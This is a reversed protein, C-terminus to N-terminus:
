ATVTAKEKKLLTLAQAVADMALLGATVVLFVAKQLVKLVLSMSKGVVRLVAKLVRTVVGFSENIEEKNDLENAKANVENYDEVATECLDILKDNGTEYAKHLIHAIRSQVGALTESAFLNSMDFVEETESIELLTRFFGKLEKGGKEEDIVEDITEDVSDREEQALKEAEKIKDMIEDDSIDSEPAEPEPTKVEISKNAILKNDVYVKVGTVVMEKEKARQIYGEILTGEFGKNIAKVKMSDTFSKEESDLAVKYTVVATITHKKVETNEESKKSSEERRKVATKVKAIVTEVQEVTKVKNLMNFAKTEGEKSLKAQQIVGRAKTKAKNLEMKDDDGKNTNTNSSSTEEKAGGGKIQNSKSNARDSTREVTNIVGDEDVYETDQKAKVARDRDQKAKLRELYISRLEESTKARKLDEIDKSTLMKEKALEVAVEKSENLKYAEEEEEEETQEVGGLDDDETLEGGFEEVEENVQGETELGENVMEEYVTGNAELIVEVLSEKNLKSYGKLGLDKALKKLDAVKMENLETMSVNMDDDGKITKTEVLRSIGTVNIMNDGGLSNVLITEIAEINVARILPKNILGLSYLMNVAYNDAFVEESQLRRSYGFDLLQEPTLSAIIGEKEEEAIIQEKDSFTSRYELHGLEHALVFAEFIGEELMNDIQYENEVYKLLLFAIDSDMQTNGVTVIKSSNYKDTSSLIFRVFEEPGDELGPLMRSYQEYHTENLLSLFPSPCVASARESLMVVEVDTAISKFYEKAGNTILLERGAELNLITNEM